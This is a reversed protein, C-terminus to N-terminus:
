QCDFKLGYETPQRQAMTFYTITQVQNSVESSDMNFFDVNITWKVVTFESIGRKCSSDAWTDRSRMALCDVTATGSNQRTSCSM